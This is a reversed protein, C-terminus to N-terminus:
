KLFYESSVVVRVLKYPDGDGYSADQNNITFAGQSAQRISGLATQANKAFHLAATQANQTADELMKPKISNLGTYKYAVNSSSIVVGKAVLDSTKQALGQVLDVKDTTITMSGYASYNSTNVQDKSHANQNLSIGGYQLAKTDVGSQSVFTKVALQDQDVKQYVAKLSNANVTYSISWIANDAKVTQEAM